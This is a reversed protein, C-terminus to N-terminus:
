VLVCYRILPRTRCSAEDPWPTPTRSTRHSPAKKLLHPHPCAKQDPMTVFRSLLLWPTARRRHRHWFPSPTSDPRSCTPRPGRVRSSSPRRQPSSAPPGATAVRPTVPIVHPCQLAAISFAM